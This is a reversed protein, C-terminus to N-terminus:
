YFEYELQFRWTMDSTSDSLGFLVGTQWYLKDAGPLRVVGKFVPGATRTNQGAFFELAPEFRSDLRYSFQLAAAMEMESRRQDGNEYILWVNSAASLRQWDKVTILGVALENVHNEREHEAEVIVGWDFAYEGQETLQWLLELEVAALDLSEGRNKEASLSAELAVKDSVAQGYGLQHLWSKEDKQYFLRYELEKELPQVYPLYFSYTSTADAMAHSSALLLIGWLFQGARSKTIM